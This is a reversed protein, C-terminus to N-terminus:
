SRIAPTSPQSSVSQTLGHSAAGLRRHLCPDHLGAASGRDGALTDLDEVLIEAVGGVRGDQQDHADARVGSTAWRNRRAAAAARTGPSGTRGGRCRGKSSVARGSPRRTPTRGHRWTRARAACGPATCTPRCPLPRGRGARGGESRSPARRRRTSPRSSRGSGPLSDDRPPDNRQRQQHRTRALRQRRQRPPPHDLQREIRGGLVGRRLVLEGVFDAVDRHDVPGVEKRRVVLQATADLFQGGAAVVRLAAQPLEVRDEAGSAQQPEGPPDGRRRDDNVARLIRHHSDAVAAVKSPDDRPGSRRRRRCPGRDARAPRAAPPRARQRLVEERPQCPRVTRSVSCGQWRMTSSPTSTTASIARWGSSPSSPWRAPTCRRASRAAVPDADPHAAEEAVVADLLLDQTASEGRPWCPTPARMPSCCGAGAPTPPASASCPPWAPGPRAAALRRTGSGADMALAVVEALRRSVKDYVAGLLEDTDPFSEYFYRTNLGCDRCVSRVSVAAEGGDGFLAFAADVLLGRTRRSPRRAARGGVQDTHVDSAVDLRRTRTVATALITNQGCDHGSGVPGVHEHRVLDDLLLHLLAEVLVDSSVVEAADLEGSGCAIGAPEAWAARDPVHVGMHLRQDEPQLAGGVHLAEVRRDVPHAHVVRPQDFAIGVAHGGVAEVGLARDGPQSM